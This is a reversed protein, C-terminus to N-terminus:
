DWLARRKTQPFTRPPLAVPTGPPLVVFKSLSANARIVADIMSNDGYFRWAVADLTERALSKVINM